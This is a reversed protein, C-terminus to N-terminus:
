GSNGMKFSFSGEDFQLAKNGKKINSSTYSPRAMKFTFHEEDFVMVKEGNQINSSIMSGRKASIGRSASSRPTLTLHESDSTNDHQHSATTFDDDIPYCTHKEGCSWYDVLNTLYTMKIFTHQTIRSKTKRKSPYMSTTRCFSPFSSSFFYTVKRTERWRINCTSIASPQKMSIKDRRVVPCTRLSEARGDIM